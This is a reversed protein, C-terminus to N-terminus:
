ACRGGGAEPAITFRAKDRPTLPSPRLRSNFAHAAIEVFLSPSYFEFATLFLPLAANRGRREKLSLAL